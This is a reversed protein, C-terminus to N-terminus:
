QHLKRNARRQPTLHYTNFIYKKHTPIEVCTFLSKPTKYKKNKNILDNYSLLPISKLIMQKSPYLGAYAIQRKDYDRFMILIFLKSSM